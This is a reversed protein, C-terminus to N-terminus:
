SLGDSFDFFVGTPDHKKRLQSLRQWNAEKYSAKIFSPHRVTNTESTSHGSVLPLLSQVCKEHWDKHVQDNASQEWMTWPGGCLRSAISLAANSPPVPFPEGTFVSFMILTKPSTSTLFHAKVAKSLETLPTDYFMADAQCRLGPPWLAGSADFIAEFSTPQAM